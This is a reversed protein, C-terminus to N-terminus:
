RWYTVMEKMDREGALVLVLKEEQPSPLQLRDTIVQTLVSGTDKYSCFRSSGRSSKISCIAFRHFPVFDGGRCSGCRCALHRLFCACELHLARQQAKPWLEWAAERLLPVDFELVEPPPLFPEEKQRLPSGADSNKKEEKNKEIIEVSFPVSRPEAPLEQSQSCWRLVHMDVLARLAQLLKHKGWGPLLHQLLDM